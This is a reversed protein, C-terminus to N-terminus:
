ALETVFAAPIARDNVHVVAGQAEFTVKSVMGTVAESPGPLGTEPDPRGPVVATVERGILASANALGSVEVLLGIARSIERMTDLTDFQAIQSFFESNDQPELPNQNRMQEVMIKLFDEQGLRAGETRQQPANTIDNLTQGFNSGIEM